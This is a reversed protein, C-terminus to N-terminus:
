WTIYTNSKRLCVFSITMCDNLINNYIQNEFKSFHSHVGTMKEITQYRPICVTKTNM